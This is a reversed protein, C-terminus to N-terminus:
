PVQRAPPGAGRAPYHGALYAVLIAQQDKALPAGWAVMQTVTKNWATTDKHQQEIMTASHCTLCNGIVLDHGHGAALHKIAVQEDAALQATLAAPPPPALRAALKPPAPQFIPTELAGTSAGSVTSIGVTRTSDTRTSDIRTSDTRTSDASVRKGAQRTCASLVAITACACCFNIAQVVHTRRRANVRLGSSM